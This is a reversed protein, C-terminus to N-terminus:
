ASRRSARRAIETRMVSLQSQRLEILAAKDGNSLDAALIELLIPDEGGSSDPLAGRGPQIGRQYAVTLAGPDWGLAKELAGRLAPRLERVGREANGITRVGLGSAAALAGQTLGVQARRQAIWEGVQSRYGVVADHRM